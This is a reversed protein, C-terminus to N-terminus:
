VVNGHVVRSRITVAGPLAVYDTGAVRHRRRTICPSLASTDGTRSVTFVGATPGAETAQPTSATVTVQNASQVTVVVTDTAKDGDDDTVELTLHTCVLPCRSLRRRGTAIVTSGERWEYSVISGDQDSSASGDLTVLETGDRDNDAVTQDPGANARAASEDIWLTVADHLNLGGHITWSDLRVTAIGQGDASNLLIDVVQSNSTVDSRSWVLAAAGAVHPTAM